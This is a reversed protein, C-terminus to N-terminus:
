KMRLKNETGNILRRINKHDTIRVLIAILITFAIIQPSGNGGIFFSIFPLSVAGLISSLSI